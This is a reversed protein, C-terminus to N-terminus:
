RFYGNEKLVVKFSEEWYKPSILYFSKTNLNDLGLLEFFPGILNNIEGHLIKDWNIAKNNDKAFKALFEGAKVFHAKETPTMSLADRGTHKCFVFQFGSTLKPNKDKIEGGYKELLKRIKEPRVGPLNEIISFWSSEGKILSKSEDIKNKTFNSFKFFDSISVHLGVFVKNKYRKELFEFYIAITDKITALTHGNRLLKAVSLKACDLLKSPELKHKKMKKNSLAAVKGNWYRVLDLFNNDFKIEERSLNKSEPIVPTVKQKQNEKKLQPADRDSAGNRKRNALLRNNPVVQNNNNEALRNKLAVLNNRNNVIQSNNNPALNNNNDLQSNNNQAVEQEDSFPDENPGISIPDEEKNNLLSSCKTEIRKNRYISNSVELLENQLKKCISLKEKEDKISQVNPTTLFFNIIENINVKFNTTPPAGIKITSIFGLQILTAKANEQSRRSLRTYAEIKEASCYVWDGNKIKGKKVLAEEFEILNKLYLAVDMGFILYLKKPVALFYEKALFQTMEIM